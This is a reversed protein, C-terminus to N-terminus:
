QFLNVNVLFFFDMHVEHAGDKLPLITHLLIVILRFKFMEFFLM